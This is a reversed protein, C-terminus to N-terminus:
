RKIKGKGKVNGPAPAPRPAVKAPAARLQPSPPSKKGEEIKKLWNSIMQLLRSNAMYLVIMPLLKFLGRKTTNMIDFLPLLYGLFPLGVYIVAIGYLAFQAERSFLQKKTNTLFVFIDAALLGLFFYMYLGYVVKGQQGFILKDDMEKFRNFLYSIDGLNKNIDNSANFPLPVFHRVFLDICIFYFATPVAMMVAWKIAISKLDQKERFFVYVPLLSIMGVLIVTEVRIYTALGFMFVSFAFDNIRKNELHRLLFYFGLFFFVMNSYDYLMVFSYAFLDPITMFLFLLLSAIFPHIRERLISYLFIIFPIFLVSEWTQGFPPTSLLKYIIQLCTIYPSKFYNNTTHLDVNFVSSVMTKERVAFEALLEPGALMDRATPPYYYCRWVSLVVLGLCVLLFPLEYIGPLEIKGMTPRKFNIFLPISCLLAVIAVGVFVSTFTIPIHWLQIFCPALSVLPVGLMVSLCIMQVPKLQLKFLQLIGRGSIFHALILFILGPFNM